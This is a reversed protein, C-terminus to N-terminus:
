KPKLSLIRLTSSPFFPSPKHFQLIKRWFVNNLGHQYNSHPGFASLQGRSQLSFEMLGDHWYLPSMPKMLNNRAEATKDSLSPM